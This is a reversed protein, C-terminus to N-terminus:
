TARELDRVRAELLRLWDELAAFREDNLRLLARLNDREGPGAVGDAGVLEKGVQTSRRGAEASVRAAAESGRRRRRQEETRDGFLFWDVPRNTLQAAGLILELTVKKRRKLNSVAASTVGLLKALDVQRTVAEFVRRCVAAEDFDLTM